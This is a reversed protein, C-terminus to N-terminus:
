LQSGGSQSIILEANKRSLEFYVLNQKNPDADGRTMTFVSEYFGEAQPLSHLGIRGHFGEAASLEIAAKVFISGIAGYRRKQGIEEIPWNWPAVELYDIYILPKGVDDNLQSVHTASKTLMAGQWLEECIIGFGKSEWMSLDAAKKSWDWNISQPMKQRDVGSLVLKKLLDGRAPGWERELLLLDVPKLGEILTAGVLSYDSNLIEIPRNKM